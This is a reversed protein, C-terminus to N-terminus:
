RAANTNTDLCRSLYAVRERPSVNGRGGEERMGAAQATRRAAKGGVMMGKCFYHLTVHRKSFTRQEPQDANRQRDNKQERQEPVV